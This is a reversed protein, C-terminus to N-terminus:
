KFISVDCDDSESDHNLYEKIREISRLSCDSDTDDINNIDNITDIVNIENTDYIENIENLENIKKMFIINMDSNVNNNFNSFESHPIKNPKIRKFDDSDSLKNDDLDINLEKLSKIGKNTLHIKSCSINYCVGDRLDDVCVQYQKDFVGHKCNFGGPCKNKVCMDCIKCLQIFIKYIEDDIKMDNNIYSIRGMIIDYALKRKTDMNQENLTHAYLCKSEYSCKGSTLINKCMLKKLSINGNNNTSTNDYRDYRDYKDYRDHRNYKDQKDYDIIKSETIDSSGMNYGIDTRKKKIKRPEVTIWNDYKNM